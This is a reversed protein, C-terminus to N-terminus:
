YSLFPLSLTLLHLNFFYKNPILIYILGQARSENTLFGHKILTYFM